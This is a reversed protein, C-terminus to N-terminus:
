GHKGPVILKSVLADIVTILLLRRTDTTAGIVRGTGVLAADLGDRAIEVAWAGLSARM